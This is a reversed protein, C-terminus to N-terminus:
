GAERFDSLSFIGPDDAAFHWRRTAFGIGSM